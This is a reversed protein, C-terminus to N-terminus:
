CKRRPSVEGDVEMEAEKLKGSDERAATKVRTSRHGTKGKPDVPGGETGSWPGMVELKEMEGELDTSWWGREKGKALATWSSESMAEDADKAM